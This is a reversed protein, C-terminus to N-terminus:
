FLLFFIEDINTIRCVLPPFFYYSIRLLFSKNQKKMLVFARAVLLDLYINIDLMFNYKAFNELM